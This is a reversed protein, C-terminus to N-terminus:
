SNLRETQKNKKRKGVGPDFQYVELFFLDNSVIYSEKFFM